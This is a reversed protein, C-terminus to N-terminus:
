FKSYIYLWVIFLYVTPQSSHDFSLMAFDSDLLVNTSSITLSESNIQKRSRLISFTYLITTWGQIRHIWANKCIHVLWHYPLIIFLSFSPGPRRQSLRNHEHVFSLVLKAVCLPIYQCELPLLLRSRILEVDVHRIQCRFPMLRVFLRM